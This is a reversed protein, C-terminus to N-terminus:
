LMTERTLDPAYANLKEMFLRSDNPTLYLARFVSRGKRRLVIGDTLRVCPSISPYGIRTVFVGKQWYAIEFDSWPYSRTWPGYKVTIGGGALIYYTSYLPWFYFAIVALGFLVVAAILIRVYAPVEDAPLDAFIVPMAVIMGCLGIMLLTMLGVGPAPHDIYRDQTQVGTM